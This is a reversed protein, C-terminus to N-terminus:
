AIERAPQGPWLMTSLRRGIWGSRKCATDPLGRSFARRVPHLIYADRLVPPNLWLVSVGGRDRCRDDNSSKGRGDGRFQPRILPVHLPQDIPPRDLLIRFDSKALAGTQLTDRIGGRGDGKAGGNKEIAQAEFDVM